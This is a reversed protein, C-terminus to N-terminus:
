IKVSQQTLVQRIIEKTEDPFDNNLMWQAYGQEDLVRKGKHKGFGYCFDGNIVEIKRALDVFDGDCCFDALGDVETGLDAYVEMQKLIVEFTAEADVLASHANELDKNCYFKFAAELTRKERKKFITYADIIKAGTFPHPIGVRNFEAALLQVDFAICNYGLIDCGSFCKYLAKSYSKFHPEDKVMDDTIGHVDSAEAPIPIGPNILKCKKEQRGDPYIKIIGIQVIRDQNVTTGTTELDFIVLPRTLHLQM